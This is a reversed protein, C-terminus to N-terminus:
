ASSPMRSPWTVPNLRTSKQDRVRMQWREGSNPTEGRYWSILAREPMRVLPDGHAPEVSELKLTFRTRRSDTDPLGVVVGRVLFDEGSRESPLQSQVLLHGNLVGWAVGACLCAPLSLWRRSRRWVCLLPPLMLPLLWVLSPLFRLYGVSLIGVCFILLRASM